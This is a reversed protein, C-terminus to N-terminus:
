VKLKECIYIDKFSNENKGINEIEIKSTAHNLMKLLQTVM